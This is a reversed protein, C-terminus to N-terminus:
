SRLWGQRRYWTVTERIGEELAVQQQYGFARRAKDVACIKCARRIERAKEQNLPPYQGFLWGYGEAALGAWEVLRGPVPVTLAWRDLAKTAADKIENWAYAAESGIFYVEGATDDSAAADAMGRVLDRVHVLSLAPTSGRGVIPCIGNNVAKFFTYIDRDRPGYVAPPRVVVIPLREQFSRRMEHRATIAREMQAKSKGYRSIPHLPTDEDAAGEKCTGVAALSSTVLVKQVSPIVQSVAGLLNLTAQVNAQEFAKWTKARTLGAVHYVYDVGELAEWLTDVDSLDGYIPTIDLGELWKRETRVLCRVEDFDRRFLEEVLHSGVFGTGGTVFATKM